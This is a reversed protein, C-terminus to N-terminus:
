SRLEQDIKELVDVYISYMVIDSDSKDRIEFVIKDAMEGEKFSLINLLHINIDEGQILIGSFSMGGLVPSCFTFKACTILKQILEYPVIVERENDSIFSITKKIENNEKQFTLVIKSDDSVQYVVNKEVKFEM